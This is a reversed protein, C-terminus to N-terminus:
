KIESVKVIIETDNNQPKISKIKFYKDSIHGGIGYEFDYNETERFQIRKKIKEISDNTIVNNKIIINNIYLNDYDYDTLVLGNHKIIIKM